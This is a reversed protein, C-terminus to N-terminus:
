ESCLCMKGDLSEVRDILANHKIANLNCIEFNTAANELIDKTSATATENPAGAHKERHTDSGAIAQNWLQLSDHTFCINDNQANQIDKYITRYITRTISESQQKGEIIKDGQKNIKEANWIDREVKSLTNSDVRWSHVQWGSFFALVCLIAILGIKFQGSLNSILSFMKFTEM